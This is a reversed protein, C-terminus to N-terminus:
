RHISETESDTSSPLEAEVLSRISIPAVPWRNAVLTEGGATDFGLLGSVPGACFRGQCPGMAFRGLLRAERPTPDALARLAGLARNECRCLVTEDPLSALEAKTEDTYIARLREQARRHQDITRDPRDPQADGRLTDRVEAGVRYGDVKAARAGLVERCDGAKRFVLDGTELIGYENRELGDHLGILDTEIKWERGSAAALSLVLGGRREGGDIRDVRTATHIPVSARLLVAMCVAAERIYSTPLRAAQLPHAFPRATEIIAAPPNGAKALDAGAALLLPGSGALVINGAPPEGTSKLVTQIAGVTLVGPLNWGPRPTIREMAGTALVVASPRVFSGKGSGIDSIFGVGQYDLGAFRVGCRVTIRSGARELKTTLRQWAKRRWRPAAPLKVGPNPQKLINGGLGPGQEVVLVDLGAEGLVTAAALGAIGAGVVVVDPELM